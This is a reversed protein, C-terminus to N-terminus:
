GHIETTVNVFCCFQLCYNIFVFSVNLYTFPCVSNLMYSNVNCLTGTNVYVQSYCSSAEPGPEQAPSLGAHPYESIITVKDVSQSQM